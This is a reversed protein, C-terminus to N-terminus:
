TTVRCVASGEKRKMKLQQLGMSNHSLNVKPELELHNKSSYIKRFDVYNVTSIKLNNLFKFDDQVLKFKGQKILIEHQVMLKFWSTGLRFRFENM